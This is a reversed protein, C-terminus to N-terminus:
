SSLGLTDFTRNMEERLKLYHLDLPVIVKPPRGPRPHVGALLPKIVKERLVLYACMTRVLGVCAAPLLSASFSLFQIQSLHGIIM